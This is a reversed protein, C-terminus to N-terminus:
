YRSTSSMVSLLSPGPILTDGSSLISGGVFAFQIFQLLACHRLQAELKESYWAVECNVM